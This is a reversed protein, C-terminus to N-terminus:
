AEAKAPVAHMTRPKPMIEALAADLAKRRKDVDLAANEADSGARREDQRASDHLAKLKAYREVALSLERALDAVTPKNM